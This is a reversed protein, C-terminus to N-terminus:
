GPQVSRIRWDGGQKALLVRSVNGNYEKVVATANTPDDIRVDDVVIRVDPAFLNEEVEKACSGHKSASTISNALKPTFIENCIRDGDGDRSAAQLDSMVFRVDDEEESAGGGGPGGTAGGCAALAALALLSTVAKRPTPM